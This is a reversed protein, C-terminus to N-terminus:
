KELLQKYYEKHKNVMNDLSFDDEIRKRAKEKIESLNDLNNYVYKITELLAKTDGSEILFGNEGNNIVEKNGGVNTAILVKGQSMIELVSIPLGEYISPLVFFDLQNIIDIVNTRNGTLKVRDSLGHEHIFEEINGREEGEGILLLNIDYEQEILEKIAALLFLHAKQKSYRAIVGINVSSVKLNYEELLSRTKEVPNKNINIGNYIVRINEEKVNHKLLNGRVMNSVAIINKGRVNIWNKDPFVNHETHILKVKCFKSIILGILTTLRHHSHIIDINEKKCIDVVAKINKLLSIPSKSKLPLIYNKIGAEKIENLMEGNCSVLVCNVSDSQLQKILDVIVRQAGGIDMGTYMFLINM